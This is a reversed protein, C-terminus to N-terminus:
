AAWINRRQDLWLMKLIDCYSDIDGLTFLHLAFVLYIKM